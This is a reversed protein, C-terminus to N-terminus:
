SSKFARGVRWGMQECLNMADIRLYWIQKFANIGYKAGHEFGAIMGMLDPRSSSNIKECMKNLGDIKAQKTIVEQNSFLYGFIETDIQITPKGLSIVLENFVEQSTKQNACLLVALLLPNILEALKDNKNKLGPRKFRWLPYNKMFDTCVTNKDALHNIGHFLNPNNVVKEWEKVCKTLCHAIDKISLKQSKQTCNIIADLAFLTLQFNHSVFSNYPPATIGWQGYKEKILESNVGTITSGMVDGVAAGFLAGLIRDQKSNQIPKSRFLTRAASNTEPLIM